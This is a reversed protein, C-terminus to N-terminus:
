IPNVVPMQVMYRQFRLYILIIKKEKHHKLETIKSSTLLNFETEEKFSLLNKIIVRVLM